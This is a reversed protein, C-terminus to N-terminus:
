DNIWGGAILEDGIYCVAGSMYVDISPQVVHSEFSEAVGLVRHDIGLLDAVAKADTIAQEASPLNLM